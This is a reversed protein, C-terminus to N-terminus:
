LKSQAALEKSRKLAAFSANRLIQNLGAKNFQQLAKATTGGKSTVNKRLTEIDHSNQHALTSAGLATGIAMRTAIDKSLGMAVGADRLAEIFAFFYAPGSGSIATVVDLAEEKDFYFLESVKGLLAEVIERGQQNELYVGTVGKGIM